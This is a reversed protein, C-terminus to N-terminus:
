FDGVPYGDNRRGLRSYVSYVPEHEPSRPLHPDFTHRTAGSRGIGTSPKFQINQSVFRVSGDCFAFNAGGPHLSSFGQYCGNETDNWAIPPDPTNLRVNVNGAVNYIGRASNAGFQLGPNNVGVWTGSHCLQTDREGLMFTNSTGDTIDQMRKSQSEMFVGYTDENPRVRRDTGRNCM